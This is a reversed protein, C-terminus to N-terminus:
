KLKKLWDEHKIGLNGSMEIAKLDPLLKKALFQAADLRQDLTPLVEAEITRGNDDLTATKVSEGNVVSILLGIPDAEQMIRERTAVNIKNAVGKKRGGTKPLGRPRAM